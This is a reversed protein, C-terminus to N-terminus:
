QPYNRVCNIMVINYIPAARQHLTQQQKVQTLRSHTMQRAISVPKRRRHSFYHRNLVALYKFGHNDIKCIFRKKQNHYWFHTNLSKMSSFVKDCHNCRLPNNEKEVISSFWDNDMAFEEQTTESKTSPQAMDMELAYQNEVSGNQHTQRVHRILNYRMTYSATSVEFPKEGSQLLNHRLLSGASAM